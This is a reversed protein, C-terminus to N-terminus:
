ENKIRNKVKLFYTKVIKNQSKNKSDPAFTFRIELM